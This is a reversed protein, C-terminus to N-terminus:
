IMPITLDSLSSENQIDKLYNETMAISSHRNGIMIKALPWKSELRVLNSYHKFSYLVYGKHTLGLANLAEKFRKYPTDRGFPNPGFIERTNTCIFFNPDYSNIQHDNLLKVLDKKGLFADRDNASVGVDSVNILIALHVLEGLEHHGYYTGHTM